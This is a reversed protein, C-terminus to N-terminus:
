KYISGGIVNEGFHKASTTGVQVFANFPQSAVYKLAVQAMTLGKRAALASVRDRRVFNDETCYATTLQLERWEAAAEGVPGFRAAFAPDSAIRKRTAKARESDVRDWKGTMFGKGLVEWGLVAIGSEQYFESSEKTAFTTDPWVPRTPVALSVQALLHTM